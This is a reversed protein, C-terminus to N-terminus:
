RYRLELRMVMSTSTPLKAASDPRCSRLPVLQGLAQGMPTPEAIGALGELQGDPQSNEVTSPEMQDPPSAPGVAPPRDQEIVPHVIGGLVHEGRIGPTERFM